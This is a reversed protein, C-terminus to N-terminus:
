LLMIAAIVAVIIVIAGGIIWARARARARASQWNQHQTDRAARQAAWRAEREQQTEQQEAM